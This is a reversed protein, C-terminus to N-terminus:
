RGPWASWRGRGPGRRMVAAVADLAADIDAGAAAIEAATPPDSHLHRETLRVCGIDLSGLM